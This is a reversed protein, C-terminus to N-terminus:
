SQSAEALRLRIALDSEQEGTKGQEDAGQAKVSELSRAAVSTDEYFPFTVPSVEYLRVKKLTRVMPDSEYDWSEELTEFAFSMQTVDGRTVTTMADKGWQTDPPTITVKLGREDEELRLTGARNRGMVYNTDHNWLARIDDNRISEAFAGPAIVERYWRGADSPSNFM